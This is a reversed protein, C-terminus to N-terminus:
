RLYQSRSARKDRGKEEHRKVQRVGYDSWGGRAAMVAKEVAWRGHVPAYNYLEISVNMHYQRLADTPNNHVHGHINVQNQGLTKPDQPYHTLLVEVGDHIFIPPDIEEFGHEALWSKSLKKDHNGRVFKKNGPLEELWDVHAKGDFWGIDGLHIITDKPQVLGKWNEIMLNDIHEPTPFMPTTRQCFKSINAHGWHTDSIIWDPYSPWQSKHVM